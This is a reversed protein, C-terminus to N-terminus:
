AYAALALASVGLAVGFDDDDTDDHDDPDPTPPTPGPNYNWYYSNVTTQVCKDNNLFDGYSTSNYYQLVATADNYAKEYALRQICEPSYRDSTHCIDVSNTQSIERYTTMFKATPQDGPFPACYSYGNANFGCKCTSTFSEGNSNTGICDSDSSCVKPFNSNVTPAKTCHGQMSISDDIKCAGSVCLTNNGNTFFCPVIASEAQSFLNQCKGPSSADIINCAANLVCEYDSYCGTQGVGILPKCLQSPTCYLGSDCDLNQSCKSDEKLGVCAKSTCNNSYCESNTYCLSGPAQNTINPMVGCQVTSYIDDYFSGTDCYTQNSAGYISAGSACTQLYVSNSGELYALCNGSMNYTSAACSWAPCTLESVTENFYENNLIIESCYDNNQYFPADESLYENTVFSSYDSANLTKILCDESFRDLTHCTNLVTTNALHQKYLSLVTISPADGSFANCYASGNVSYGCDCEGTITANNGSSAVCDTDYSCANAFGNVNVANPACYGLGNQNPVDLTCVGTTCLRSFAEAGQSVCFQVQSKVDISYYAKCKGISFTPKDCGANNVCQYDLYCDGGIAVQATCSGSTACYLGVGCNSNTSCSAGTSNGVCVSSTCNGSICDSNASCAAGPNAPTVTPTPAVTCNSPYPNSSDVDCYPASSSRCLQMSVTTNTELYCSNGYDVGPQHCAYPVCTKQAAILPIFTVLVLYWM